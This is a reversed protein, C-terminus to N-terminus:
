ATPSWCFLLAARSELVHPFRWCGRQLSQVVVGNGGSSRTSADFSVLSKHLLWWSVIGLCLIRYDGGM